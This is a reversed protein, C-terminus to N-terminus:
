TFWIALRVILTSPFRSSQFPTRGCLTTAVPVPPDMEIKQGARLRRYWVDYDGKDYTDWAIAVDGNSSAAISPDWDSAPSFSVTTEPSFSDGTQVAALVDLGERFGQWAIWVRGTSDTAAVPNLDAGANSTVRIEPGFVGNRGARAYLDFNGNRQASWIVWVRGTGDIATATRAVDEGKPSVPIPPEWSGKSPAYHMAFVQDGGAPRALDEIRQSAALARDGHSFRVFSMWISDGAHAIAPYDEDDDSTTLQATPPVRDVAVAGDLFTKQDGWPLDHLTFSFDGRPTHLSWRAGPGADATILVGNELISDPGNGQARTAAKWSSAYDTSDDAGFRWGQIAKVSGSDISVTGDWRTPETDTLGFLVRVSSVPNGGPPRVPGSTQAAALVTLLAIPLIVQRIHSASPM